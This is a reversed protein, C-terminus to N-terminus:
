IKFTKHFWRFYIKGLKSEYNMDMVDCANFSIGKKEEQELLSSFSRRSIQM